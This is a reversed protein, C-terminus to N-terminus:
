IRAFIMRGASTQLVSTVTVNEMNGISERGNEVVIMTGDELYAVGQGHEKGEKIISVRIHEGPILVPKVANALDNINFVPVGQVAAVKNLNFDNTVVKGGIEKAMKLLKLDVEPTDDYDTDTIEVPITLERQMQAVIDLGRRGKSRKLSDASDAIHQLESLVFEPVIIIGEIIGTKLVDVIRGDIIVSTDLIKAGFFKNREKDREIASAKRKQTSERIGGRISELVGINRSGIRLGLFGCALYVIVTLPLSIWKLPIMGIAWSLLAAIILGAILGFVAGAVINAPAKSAEAEIKLLGNYIKDAIRKSLLLSIIGTVVGSGAYVAVVVLPALTAEVDMQTSRMIEFTLAARGPGVAIGILVIFIRLLIKM